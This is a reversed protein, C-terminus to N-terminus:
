RRDQREARGEPSPAEGMRDSERVGRQTDMRDLGRIVDKKTIIDVLRNNHLVLCYRLGLAKFIRLLHTVSTERKVCMPTSDVFWSIDVWSADSSKGMGSATAFLVETDQTGGERMTQTLARNLKERTIYGVVRMEEKSTVVPFGMHDGRSMVDRVERVVLGGATMVKLEDGKCFDKATAHFRAERKPDLFPYENLEIHQEYISKGFCDGVIKSLSVAVMVPVLYELGGTLEFMIVVLSLTMRTVGGLMAAAGVIAYVGPIVCSDDPLGQCESFLTFDEYRKRISQMAVGAVRGLCAGIFMSPIFLGAPVRIGFTLVTLGFKVTAALLLGRVLASSGEACLGEKDEEPCIQFLEALFETAGGRMHVVGYNAFSTLLAVCLVETVPWFRIQSEKRVRSWSVNLRNFVGGFVGGLAGLLAFPLLEFHQWQYFYNTPFLVLRGTLSPDIKRMVLAAVAACLFSRWMTKHPFFYSAEELSFLVGGIPAGFAVAVGASCSASVLERRRSEYRRYRPFLSTVLHGVCSAVHVFPGEKGCSLGAGISLCLGVCKIVLTWRSLYGKISVGSLITKIEPIGSGAAFPAFTKVLWASLTAFCTALVVYMVCDATGSPAAETGFREAWTVWAPCDEPTDRTRPCCVRKNAWMYDDCMGNKLDTVLDVGIHVMSALLGTLSGIVLVACYGQADEGLLKRFGQPSGGETDRDSRRAVRGAAQPSGGETDRDSPRTHARRLSLQDVDEM